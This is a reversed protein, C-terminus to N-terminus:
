MGFDVHLSTVVAPATMKWAKAPAEAEISSRDLTRVTGFAMKECTGAEADRPPRRRGGDNSLAKATTERSLDKINILFRDTSGRLSHGIYGRDKHIRRADAPSRTQGSLSGKALGSMSKGAGRLGTTPEGCHITELREM